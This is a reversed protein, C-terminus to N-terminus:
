TSVGPATSSTSMTYSILEKRPPVPPPPVSTCVSTVASASIVSRLRSRTTSSTSRLLDAPPAAARTAVASTSLRSRPRELYGVVAGVNNRGEDNIVAGTKYEQMRLEQQKRKWLSFYPLTSPGPSNTDPEAAANLLAFSSSAAAARDHPERHTKSKETQSGISPLRGDHWPVPTRPDFFAFTEPANQRREADAQRVLARAYSENFDIYAYYQEVLRRIRVSLAESTHRPNCHLRGEEDMRGLLQVVAATRALEEQSAATEQPHTACFTDHEDLVGTLHIVAEPCRVTLREFFALLTARDCERLRDKYPPPLASPDGAAAEPVQLCVDAEGAASTLHQPQWQERLKWLQAVGNQARRLVEAQEVVQREMRSMFESLCNQKNAPISKYEGLADNDFCVEASQDILAQLAADMNRECMDMRERLELSLQRAATVASLSEINGQEMTGRLVYDALKLRTAQSDILSQQDVIKTRYRQHQAKVRKMLEVFSEGLSSLESQLSDICQTREVQLNDVGIDTFNEETVSPETHHSDRPTPPPTSLPSHETMSHTRSGSAVQNTRPTSALSAVGENQDNTYAGISDVVKKFLRSLRVRENRDAQPIRFAPQHPDCTMADTGLANQTKARSSGGPKNERGYQAGQGAGTPGLLGDPKETLVDTDQGVREGVEAIQLLLRQVGGLASHTAKHAHQLKSHYASKLLRVYSLLRKIERNHETCSTDLFNHWIGEHELLWQKEFARAGTIHAQLFEKVLLSRGQKSKLNSKTFLSKKISALADATIKSVGANGRGSAGNGKAKEATSSSRGSRKKQRESSLPRSAKSSSRTVSEGRTRSRIGTAQSSAGKSAREKSADKGPTPSASQRTNKPSHRGPRM